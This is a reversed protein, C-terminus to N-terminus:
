QMEIRGRHIPEPTSQRAYPRNLCCCGWSIKSRRLVLQEEAVRSMSGRGRGTGEWAERDVVKYRTQPFLRSEASFAGQKPAGEEAETKQRKAHPLKSELEYLEANVGELFGPLNAQLSVFTESTKDLPAAPHYIRKGLSAVGTFKKTVRMPDCQLKESLFARLTMGRRKHLRSQCLEAHAQTTDDLQLMNHKFLQILRLAYREEEASWKGKRKSGVSVEEEGDYKEDNSEEDDDDGKSRVEQDPGGTSGGGKDERPPADALESVKDQAPTGLSVASPSTEVKDSEEQDQAPPEKVGESAPAPEKPGGNTVADKPSPDPTDAAAMLISAYVQVTFVRHVVSAVAFLL